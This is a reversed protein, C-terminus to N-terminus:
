RFRTTQILDFRPYECNLECTTGGLEAAEPLVGLRKKNAEEEWREEKGKEPSCEGGEFESGEADELKHSFCSYPCVSPM